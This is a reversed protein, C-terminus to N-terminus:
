VNLGFPRFGRDKWREERQVQQDFRGVHRWSERLRGRQNGEDRRRRLCALALALALTKM